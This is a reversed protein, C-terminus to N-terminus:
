KSTETDEKKQQEKDSCKSKLKQWENFFLDGHKSRGKWDEKPLSDLARGNQGKLDVVEGEDIEFEKCLQDIWNVVEQKNWLGPQGVGIGHCPDNMKDLCYKLFEM